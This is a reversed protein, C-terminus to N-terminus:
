WLKEGRQDFESHVSGAGSKDPIIATRGQQRTLEHREADESRIQVCGDPQAPRYEGWLLRLTLHRRRSLGNHMAARLLLGSVARDSLGCLRAIERQSHECEHPLRLTEEISEMAIRGRPM